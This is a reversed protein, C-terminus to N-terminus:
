PVSGTSSINVSFFPQEKQPTQAPLTLPTAGSVAFTDRVAPSIHIKVNFYSTDKYIAELYDAAADCISSEADNYEENADNALKRYNQIDKKNCHGMFPETMAQKGISGHIHIVNEINYVEELVNTYNFNFFYHEDNNILSEKKPKIESLDIKRNDM